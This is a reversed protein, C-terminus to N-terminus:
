QRAKGNEKGDKVEEGEVLSLIRQIAAESPVRKGSRWYSILSESVGLMVALRAQPLQHARAWSFLRAVAEAGMVKRMEPSIGQVPMASPHYYVVM